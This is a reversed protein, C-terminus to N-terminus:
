DNWESTSSAVSERDKENAGCRVRSTYREANEFRGGGGGGVVLSNKLAEKERIYFELAVFSSCTKPTSFCKLPSVSLPFSSSLQGSKQKRESGDTKSSFNTRITTRSLLLSSRSIRGAESFFSECRSSNLAYYRVDFSRAHTCKICVCVCVSFTSLSIMFVLTTQSNRAAYYLTLVNADRSSCCSESRPRSRLIVDELLPTYKSSLTKLHLHWRM